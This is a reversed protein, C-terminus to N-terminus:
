KRKWYYVGEENMAVPFGKGMISEVLFKMKDSLEQGLSQFEGIYDIVCKAEYIPLDDFSEYLMIIRRESEEYDKKIRFYYDAALGHAQTIGEDSAKVIFDFYREYDKEIQWYRKMYMQSIDLWAKAQDESELIRKIDKETEKVQQILSIREEDIIEKLKGIKAFSERRFKVRTEDPISLEFKDVARVFGEVDCLSLLARLYLEEAGENENSHNTINRDETLKEIAKVTQKEAPAIFRCGHLIESIFTVDMDDVSYEEIGYSRMHEYASIYKDKSWTKNLVEKEAKKYLEGQWGEVIILKLFEQCVNCRLKVVDPMRNRIEM